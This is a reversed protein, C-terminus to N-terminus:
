PQEGLMRKPDNHFGPLRRFPGAKLLYKQVEEYTHRPCVGLQDKAGWCPPEAHV